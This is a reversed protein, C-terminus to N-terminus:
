PSARVLSTTPLFLRRSNGSVRRFGYKEYFPILDDSGADVVLGLGGTATLSEYSIRRALALLRAGLGQGQMSETVGLRGLLVAGVPNKPLGKPTDPWGAAEIMCPSLTFYGLIPKPPKADSEVLVRTLSVGKETHGRATQKLYSDITATGSAFGKRDHSADLLELVFRSMPPLLTLRVPRPM